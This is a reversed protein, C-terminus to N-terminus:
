VMIWRIKDEGSVDLLFGAEKVLYANVLIAPDSESTEDGLALFSNVSIDEPTDYWVKSKTTREQGDTDVVLSSTDEWRVGVLVPSEFLSDGFSDVGSFEWYTAQETLVGDLLGM